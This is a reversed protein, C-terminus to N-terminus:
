IESAHYTNYSSLAELQQWNTDCVFLSVPCHSSPREWRIITKNDFRCCTGWIIFASHENNPPLAMKSIPEFRTAFFVTPTIYLFPLLQDIKGLHPWTFAENQKVEPADQGWNNVEVCIGGVDGDLRWYGSNNSAVRSCTQESLTSATNAPPIFNCYIKIM